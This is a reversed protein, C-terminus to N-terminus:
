DKVYTHADVNQWQTSDDGLIFGISVSDRGAAISSDYPSYILFAYQGYGIPWARVGNAEGSSLRKKLLYHKGYVSDCIRSLSDLVRVSFMRLPNTWGLKVRYVVGSDIFYDAMRFLTSDKLVEVYGSEEAEYIDGGGHTLEEQSMGLYIRRGVFGSPLEAHPIKAPVRVGDDRCSWCGIAAGFLVIGIGFSKRRSKKAM